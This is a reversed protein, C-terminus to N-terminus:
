KVNATPTKSWAEVIERALKAMLVEAENDPTWSQDQNSNTFESILIPGHRTFVVGVDNRTADLAGTKNAVGSEGETTDQQELYRPISNRYFQNKLMHMAADCLPQDASAAHASANPVNGAAGPDDLNCTVFRKMVTAMEYATTKGLGFTKQDGPMPGSPPLFVKKYLWTDHLGLAVIRDDINKLGLHDIALNTATNDSMIIMLTLADKFTLLQPTDFFTLVGSGAVQDAHTLTLKDEFHVQGAQIQKLADYLVTLKIVSATQVPANADLAVTRGTALDEAYLAVKGHHAAALTALKTQLAQDTQSRAIAPATLAVLALPAALRLTFWIRRPPMKRM